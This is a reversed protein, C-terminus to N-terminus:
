TKMIRKLLLEREAADLRPFLNEDISISFSARKENVVVNRSNLGAVFVSLAKDSTCFTFPAGFGAKSLGLPATYVELCRLDAMANYATDSTYNESPKLIKRAAPYNGAAPSEYLCSLVALFPFSIFSIGFHEAIRFIEDQRKKLHEARVNNRILPVANLLFDHSTDYRQIIQSLVDHVRKINKDPYEIVKVKSLHARITAAAEKM